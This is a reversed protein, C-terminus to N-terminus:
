PKTTESSGGSEPRDDLASIRPERALTRVQEAVIGLRSLRAGAPSSRDALLGLLVHVVRIERVGLRRAEEDARQLATAACATLPLDKTFAAKDSGARDAAVADRLTGAGLEDLLEPAETALGWLLLDSDIETGGIQTAGARAHVIVRRAALTYRDFM